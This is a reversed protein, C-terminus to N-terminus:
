LDPFDYFCISKSGSFLPDKTSGSQTMTPMGRVRPKRDVSIEM